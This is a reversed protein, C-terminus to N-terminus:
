SSSGSPGPACERASAARASSEDPLSLVTGFRHRDAPAFIPSAEQDSWFGLAHRRSSAVAIDALLIPPQLQEPDYLLSLTAPAIM